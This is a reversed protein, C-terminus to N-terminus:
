RADTHVYEECLEAYLRVTEAMQTEIAWRDGINNCGRSGMQRAGNPDALLEDLREALAATDARPVIYGSVGHHVVERAGEVDSTVIPLGAAAAQVLVQPLGEWLSAFIFSDCAALLDPVDARYGLFSVVDDLGLSRSLDRLDGEGHGEGVVWLRLGPHRDVLRAIAELVFRQGKRPELRGITVVVFDSDQVAAATRIGQGRTRRQSHADRYAGIDMGSHIVRYQDPRGVGASLYRDRLGQSVSVICHTRYALLRETWLYAMRTPWALGEHFTIGHLGHIICPVGALQAALRGVVGAKATHTHVVSYDRAAMLARLQRVASIDHAPSIRRVLSPVRHVPVSGLDALLRGDSEPGIALEVEYLGERRLALISNFLNRDAGGDIFRTIVRLVRIKRVHSGRLKHVLVYYGISRGTDVRRSAENFIYEFHLRHRLSSIYEFGNALIGHGSRHEKASCRV